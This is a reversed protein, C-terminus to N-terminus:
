AAGDLEAPKPPSIQNSDFKDSASLGLELRVIRETMQAQLESVGARAASRASENITNTKEELTSLRQVINLQRDEMRDVQRVLTEFKAGMSVLQKILDTIESM